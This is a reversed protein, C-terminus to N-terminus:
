SHAARLLPRVEGPLQDLDVGQWRVRKRRVFRSKVQASELQLSCSGQYLTPHDTVGPLGPKDEKRKSKEWNLQTSLYSRAKGIADKIVSRQYVFAPRPVSGHFELGGPPPHEKTAVTHAEVWTLLEHASPAREALKEAHALFFNLYFARALDFLENTADLAARKDSNADGATRKGLDLHPKTTRTAQGM